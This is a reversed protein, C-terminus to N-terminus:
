KGICFDSFISELLEESATEGTVRGLADVAESIDITLFDAPLHQGLAEQAHVVSQLAHRFLARHRPNSALPAGSTVVRGSLITDEMLNELAGIGTGRLASVAIHPSAPLLEQYRWVTPLDDKNVVVISPKDVCLAAVQHDAETARESGDVVLLAMDAQQIAARSREIGRQEIVNDTENIGATDVLVVPIGDLDITEELTDRTTGPIPTVIARDTRLLTNLLSSKGVNPKGVIAAHIGQRYIIGRSAEELLAELHRAAEELEGEIDQLPIDEEPFDIVAELYALAHLLKERIDRVESALSGNLQNVAVRLSAETRASIIDAVAEAQTLDIRGNLFARLTFEGEQAMRAGSALCLSLIERLPVIGGHGNIEVIDQRTYTRPAKMYSLLVEDVVRGTEPDIVHGYHLCHSEPEGQWPHLPRFVKVAIPLAEDGSMRVIGIGGQGIPTSIAAITDDLSYM